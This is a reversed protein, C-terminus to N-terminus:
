ISFRVARIDATLRRMRESHMVENEAQQMQKRVSTLAEPVGQRLKGNEGYYQEVKGLEVKM